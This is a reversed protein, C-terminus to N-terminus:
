SKKPSGGPHSLGIEALGCFRSLFVKSNVCCDLLACFSVLKAFPVQGDPQGGGGGHAAENGLSCTPNQSGGGVAVMTWDLGVVLPFDAAPPPPLCVLEWFPRLIPKEYKIDPCAWFVHTLFHDVNPWDQDKGLDQPEAAKIWGIKQAQSRFGGAPGGETVGLACGGLWPM